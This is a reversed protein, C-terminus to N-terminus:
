SARTESVAQQQTVSNHPKFLQAVLESYDALKIKPSRV